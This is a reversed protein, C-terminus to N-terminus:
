DDDPRTNRLYILLGILALAIVGMLIMGQTTFFFDFM